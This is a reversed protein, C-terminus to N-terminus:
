DVEKEGIQETITTGIEAEAIRLTEPPSKSQIAFYIARAREINGATVFSDARNLENWSQLLQDATIFGQQQAIVAADRLIGSVVLYSAEIRAADARAAVRDTTSCGPATLGLAIVLLLARIM